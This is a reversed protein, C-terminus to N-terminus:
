RVDRGHATRTDSLHSVRFRAPRPERTATPVGSGPPSPRIPALGTEPPPAAREHPRPFSRRAPPKKERVADPQTSTTPRRLGRAVTTEAPAGATTAAEHSAPALPAAVCGAPPAAVATASDAVGSHCAVCRMDGTAVAATVAAARAYTGAGAVPHCVSCVSTATGELGQGLLRVRHEAVLDESHCQGLCGANEGAGYTVGGVTGTRSAEHSVSHNSEGFTAHCTDTQSASGGCTQVTPGGAAHCGAAYCNHHHVTPADSSAHCGSRACYGPSAAGSPDRETAQHKSWFDLHKTGDVHCATAPDTGGCTMIRPGGEAHCGTNYCYKQTTSHLIRVDASVHCGPRVCGGPGVTGDYAIETAQHKSDFSRHKDAGTHCAGPTGEDGGCTMREPGGDAHCGATSCSTEAHLTRVDATAHCGTHACGGPGIRGLYDIETATHATDYDDHKTHGAHCSHEDGESGGCTMVGSGRIDGTASHCATCGVRAHVKRVDNTAHCGARGCFGPTITGQYDKEVAQHAGALSAPSHASTPAGPHCASCAAASTRGPWDAKVARATRASANHCGICGQETRALPNSPRRHEDALAQAHCGTCATTVGSAPDTFSADVMGTAVHHATDRGDTRQDSTGAHVATDPDYDGAAGHCAQGSGCSSDGAVLAAGGASETGHCTLCDRHVGSAGITDIRTSPHCGAGTNACGVSDRSVHVSDMAGHAAGLREGDHCVACADGTDRADWDDAIAATSSAHNHCSVCAAGEGGSGASTPRAHESILSEGDPAMRHCSGCATGGVATSKAPGDTQPSHSEDQNKHRYGSPDSSRHCVGDDDGGCSRATPAHSEADLDHCGPEGSAASGACTKPEDPHLAHLDASDHCGAGSEACGTDSKADVAPAVAAAHMPSSSGLRHCAECTRAGWDSLVEAQGFSRVDNHCEGCGVSEGYESGEVQPVADHAAALDRSHCDGCTAAADGGKAARVERKMDTATATHTTERYHGRPYPDTIRVRDPAQKMSGDHCLVCEHERPSHCPICGVGQYEHCTTCKAEPHYANFDRYEQEDGHCGAGSDTCGSERKSNYDSAETFSHVTATPPNWVMSFVVAAVAGLAFLAYKGQSVATVDLRNRLRGVASVRERTRMFNPREPGTVM